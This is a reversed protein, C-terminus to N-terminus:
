PVYVKYGRDIFKQIRWAKPTTNIYLMKYVICWYQLPSIYLKNEAISYHPMCHKFDFTKKVEEPSGYCMTIFSHKSKMTIAQSTIMKGNVGFVESYKEDVDKIYEMNYSSKLMDVFRNQTFLDTFYLDLDNIEEGQLLSAIAGGSLFINDLDTFDDVFNHDYWKEYQMLLIKDRLIPKISSIHEEQDATFEEPNIM